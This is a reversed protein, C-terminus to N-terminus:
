APIEHSNSLPWSRRRCWKQSYHSWNISQNGKWPDIAREMSQNISQNVPQNMANKNNATSRNISQNLFQNISHPISQNISQNQTKELSNTLNIGLTHWKDEETANGTLSRISEPRKALFFYLLSSLLERSVRSQRDRPCWSPSASWRAHRGYPAPHRTTSPRPWARQGVAWLGSVNSPPMQSPSPCHPWHPALCHPWPGSRRLPPSMEWPSREASDGEGFPVNKAQM